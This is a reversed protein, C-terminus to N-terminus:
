GGRKTTYSSVSGMHDVYRISIGLQLALATEQTVGISDEWGDITLVFVEESRRIFETNYSEWYAADTPMGYLVATNHCHLIPSFVTHVGRQALISFVKSTQQVRKAVIVPDPHSYPSALYVLSM